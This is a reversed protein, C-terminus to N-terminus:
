TFPNEKDYQWGQTDVCPLVSRSCTLQGAPTDIQSGNAFMEKNYEWVQAKTEAFDKNNDCQCMNRTRSPPMAFTSGPTSPGDLVHCQARPPQYQVPTLIERTNATINDIEQGDHTTIASGPPNTYGNKYSYLIPVMGELRYKHRHQAINRYIPCPYASYPPQLPHEHTMHSPVLMGRRNFSISPPVGRLTSCHVYTTDFQGSTSCYNGYPLSVLTRPPQLFHPHHTHLPLHSSQPQIYTGQYTCIFQLIRLLIKVRVVVMLLIGIMCSITAQRHLCQSITPQDMLQPLSELLHENATLRPHQNLLLISKVSPM